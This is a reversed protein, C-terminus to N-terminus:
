PKPKLAEVDTKIKDVSVSLVTFDAKIKSIDEQANIIHKYAASIDELIALMEDKIKHIEKIYQGLIDEEM